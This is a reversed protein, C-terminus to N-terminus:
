DDSMNLMQKFLQEQQDYLKRQEITLENLFKMKREFWHDDNIPQGKGFALWTVDVGLYDAIDEYYLSPKTHDYIWSSVSQQKINLHKALTVQSIKGEHKPSNQMAWKLRQGTTELDQNM